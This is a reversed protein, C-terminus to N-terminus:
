QAVIQPMLQESAGKVNIGSEQGMKEVKAAFALCHKSLIQFAQVDSRESLSLLITMCLSKRRRWEGTAERLAEQAEQLENTDKDTEDFSAINALRPEIAAGAQSESIARRTVMKRDSLAAAERQTEDHRAIVNKLSAEASAVESELAHIEEQIAKAVSDEHVALYFKSEGYEKKTTKGSKALADLLSQIEDTSAVDCFHDMINQEHYPRHQRRMYILVKEEMEEKTLQGTQAEAQAECTDSQCIVNDNVISETEEAEVGLEETGIHRVEVDDPDRPLVPTEGRSDMEVLRPPKLQETASSNAEAAPQETVIKNVDLIESATALVPTEMGREIEVVKQPEQELVGTPTPTAEVGLEAEVIKKGELIEPATVSAPCDARQEMKVIRTPKPKVLETASSNAEVAPEAKVVKNVDLMESDTSLAPTEMGREMKVVRQPEQKVVGTPTPTAEVGPEAKVIKKGELIEPATVPAPCDARPEMKVIRSQEQKVVVTALPKAEVGPEAKVIVNPEKKVTAMALAKALAKANNRRARKAVPAPFASGDEEASVTRKPASTESAALQQEVVAPAPPASPTVDDDSDVLDMQDIVVSRLGLGAVPAEQLAAVAQAPPSAATEPAPMPVTPGDNDSDSLIDVNGASLSAPLPLAVLGVPPEIQTPASATPPVPEDDSSLLEMGGVAAVGVGVPMPADIPEGTAPPAPVSPSVSPAAPMPEDDDSLIDVSAM